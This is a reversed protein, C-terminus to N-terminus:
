RNVNAAAPPSRRGKTATLSPSSSGLDFLNFRQGIQDLVLAGYKDNGHWPDAVCWEEDMFGDLSPAPLPYDLLSFRPGLEKVVAELALQQAKFFALWARPGRPGYWANVFWAPDTRLVRNPAPSPQLLVSGQFHESLLFALEISAHSRIYSEVAANFVAASLFETGPPPQGLDEGIWDVCSFCGLPHSYPDAMIFENRAAFWSCASIVLGDYLAINLGSEIAEVVTTLTERPLVPRLRGGELRLRPQEGGILAYFDIVHSGTVQISPLASKLAAVHSNGIVCIKM